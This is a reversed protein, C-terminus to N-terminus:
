KLYDWMFSVTFIASSFGIGIAFGNIINQLFKSLM